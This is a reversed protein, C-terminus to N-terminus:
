FHEDATPGYSGPVPVNMLRLYVTLQGRHHILHSLTMDRLVAVKPKEFRVRGMLKLRWPQLMEADGIGALAQKCYAAQDDFAQLLDDVSAAQFPQYTAPNMDLEDSKVISGTWRMCDVIHSALHRSTFSKEHPRWDLKDDPLRELLRRTTEVEHEFEIVLADTMTM